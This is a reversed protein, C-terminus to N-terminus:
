RTPLMMMPPKRAGIPALLEETDISKLYIQTVGLHAHGLQAQISLLPVGERSLNVAHAHRMQHAAIRRRVGSRKQLQAFQRRVDSTQMALGATPGSLVCFIQGPPLALRATFWKECSAWGWEDMMVLRRKDSKGRRVVIMQEGPHLDREELALAESIRIGTRWLLVILTRLRLASLEAVKGPRLPECVALLAVMDEITPPDPPYKRGKTVPPKPPKFGPTAAPSLPRGRADLAPLLYLKRNPDAPPM